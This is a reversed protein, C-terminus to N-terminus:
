YIYYKSLIVENGLIKVFWVTLGAKVTKPKIHKEKLDLAVKIYEMLIKKCKDYIERYKSSNKLLQTHIDKLKWSKYTYTIFDLIILLGIFFILLNIRNPMFILTLILATIAVGVLLLTTNHTLKKIIYNNILWLDVDFPTVTTTTILNLTQKKINTKILIRLGKTERVVDENFNIKIVKCSTLSKWLDTIIKVLSEESLLFLSKIYKVLSM